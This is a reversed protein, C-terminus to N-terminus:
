ARAIVPEGNVVFECSHAGADTHSGSIGAAVPYCEGTVTGTTFAGTGGSVQFVFNIVAGTGMSGMVDWVSINSNLQILGSTTMKAGRREPVYKRWPGTNVDTSEVLTQEFDIRCERACAVTETVTGNDIQFIVDRGLIPEYAM